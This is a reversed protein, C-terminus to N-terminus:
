LKPATWFLCTTFQHVAPKCRGLNKPEDWRSPEPDPISALAVRRPWADFSARNADDDDDDDDDGTVM